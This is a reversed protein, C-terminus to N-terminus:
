DDSLIAAHMDSIVGQWGRDDQRLVRGSPYWAPSSWRWDPDPEVLVCVDRGMSGALNACSSDITILPGNFGAIIKATDLFCRLECSHDIVGGPCQSAKEDHQL